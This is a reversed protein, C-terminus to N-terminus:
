IRKCITTLATIIEEGDVEREETIINEVQLKLRNLTIKLMVKSPHSILSIM